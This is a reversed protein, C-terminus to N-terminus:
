ARIDVRTGVPLRRLLRRMVAAGAVLCGASDARGVRRDDPTGHIALRDGGPWGAPLSPQRGSLALICCGYASRLGGTVLRDTVAFRGLPTPSGPAGIGVTFREVVRGRRLVTAVRDSRDVVIRWPASYLRADGARIWGARGNPMAEHLVGLWRGRRAVVALIQPGDFQTKTGIRAVVAGGPSERLATRRLVGAGLPAHGGRRQPVRAAPRATSQPGADELSGGTVPLRQWTAEGLEEAAGAATAAAILTAATAFAALRRM